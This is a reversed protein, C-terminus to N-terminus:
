ASTAEQWSIRNWASKSDDLLKKVVVEYYSRVEGGWLVRGDLFANGWAEWGQFGAGRALAAAAEVYHWVTAEDVFGATFCCRALFPLRIADWALLARDVIAQDERPQSADQFDPDSRHGYRVLDELRGRASSEDRIGWDKRLLHRVWLRGLPRRGVLDGERFSHVKWYPAALALRARQREDLRVKRDLLGALADAGWVVLGVLLM